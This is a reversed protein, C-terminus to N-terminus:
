RGKQAPRVIKKFAKFVSGRTPVPVEPAKPTRQTPEPQKKDTM